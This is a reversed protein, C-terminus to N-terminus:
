LTSVVQAPLARSRGWGAASQQGQGALATARRKLGLDNEAATPRRTEAPGPRVTVDRPGDKFIQRLRRPDKESARGSAKKIVPAAIRSFGSPESHNRLTMQTCGPILFTEGTYGFAVHRVVRLLETARVPRALAPTMCRM